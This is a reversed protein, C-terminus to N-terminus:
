TSSMFLRRSKREFTVIRLFIADKRAQECRLCNRRAARAQSLLQAGQHQRTPLTSDAYSSGCKKCIPIWCLVQLHQKFLTAFVYQTSSRILACCTAGRAPDKTDTRSTESSRTPELASTRRRPPRIGDHTMKPIIKSAVNATQTVTFM